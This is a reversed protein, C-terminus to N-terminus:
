HGPTPNPTRRKIVEFRTVKSSSDSDTVSHWPKPHCQVSSVYGYKSDFSYACSADLDIQDGNLSEKVAAFRAEVTEEDLFWNIGSQMEQNKTAQVDHPAVPILKSGNPPIFSTVQGKLVHVTWKGGMFMGNEKLDMEYEEINQSNWRAFAQDYQWGAVNTGFVVYGVIL